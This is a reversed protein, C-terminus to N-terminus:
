GGTGKDLLNRYFQIYENAVSEWTPPFDPRRPSPPREIAAEVIAPLRDDREYYSIGTLIPVFDPVGAFATSVVPLGTALAELISVPLDISGLPNRVPFLYVDSLQYFEEINPEYGIRVDVRHARLYNIIGSDASYRSSAVVLAYFHHNALQALPLLNRSAKMHGVHLVVRADLPIGRKRRLTSRKEASVPKFRRRDVGHPIRAIPIDLHALWNASRPAQTVIGDFPVGRVFKSYSSDLTSSQIVSGVLVQPKTVFRIARAVLLMTRTMGYTPLIHVVEPRWGREKRFAQLIASMRSLVPGQLGSSDVFRFEDALQSEMARVMEAFVTVTGEDRSGGADSVFLVRM